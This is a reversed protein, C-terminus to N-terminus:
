RVGEVFEDLCWADPVHDAERIAMRSCITDLLLIEVSDSSNSCLHAPLRTLLIWDM